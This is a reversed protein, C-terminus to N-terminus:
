CSDKQTLKVSIEQEQHKKKAIKERQGGRQDKATFRWKGKNCESNLGTRM